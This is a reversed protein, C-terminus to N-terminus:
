LYEQQPFLDYAFFLYVTHQIILSYGWSDRDVAKYVTLCYCVMDFMKLSHFFIM